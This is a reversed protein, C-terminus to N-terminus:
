IDSIGPPISTGPTSNPQGWGTHLHFGPHEGRVRRLLMRSEGFGDLGDTACALRRPLTGDCPGAAAPPLPDLCAPRPGRAPRPDSTPSSSWPTVTAPTMEDFARHSKSGKWASAARRVRAPQVLCLGATFLLAALRAFPIALCVGCIVILWGPMVATLSRTIKRVTIM